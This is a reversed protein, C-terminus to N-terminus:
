LINIKNMLEVQKIVKLSGKECEKESFKSTEDRVAGRILLPINNRCHSKKLSCTSHDSTVIILGKFDNLISIESDIKEIFDKKELFKGDEALSDTAKIHIFIFDYSLDLSEKAKKFKGRLNTDPLGNAGEVELVDMKLLRGIEKYLVKGAICAPKRNYKEGFEPLYVIESAGRTLIYNAPLNREKNISHEKLKLHSEKIFKNLVEATFKAEKSDNLPKVEELGEGGEKYHSDGDSISSSLGEGRLVVGVRHEKASKVIFKVGDIEMGDIEKILEETKDIRGARRDIVKGDVVTSFNGRLAVDGKKLEIGAGGATVIGRALKYEKPDYGFLSFHGEESTPLHGYFNPSLLGLSGEEAWKDLNPTHAEELPTKYDFDPIKDDGLGDLVIFIVKEKM